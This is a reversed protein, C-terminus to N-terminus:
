EEVKITRGLVDIEKLDGEEAGLRGRVKVEYNAKMLDEMRTLDEDSGSFTFDDGHVVCWLERQPHYFAM